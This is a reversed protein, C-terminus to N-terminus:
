GFLASKTKKFIVPGIIKVYDPKYKDPLGYILPSYKLELKSAKEDVSFTTFSKSNIIAGIGNQWDGTLYLDICGFGAEGSQNFKKAAYPISGYIGIRSGDVKFGQRLNQKNFSVVSSKTEEFSDRKIADFNIRQANAAVKHITSLNGM